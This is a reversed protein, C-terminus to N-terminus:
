RWNAAPHKSSFFEGENDFTRLSVIKEDAERRNDADDVTEVQKTQPDRRNIFRM